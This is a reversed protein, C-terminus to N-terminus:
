YSKSVSVRSENDLKMFTFTITDTSIGYVTTDAKGLEKRQKHVCGKSLDAWSHM